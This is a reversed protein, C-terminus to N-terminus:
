HTRQKEEPTLTRPQVLEVHPVSDLFDRWIGTRLPSPGSLLRGPTRHLDRLTVPGAHHRRREEPGRPCRGHAAGSRRRADTRPCHSAEDRIGGKERVEQSPPRACASAAREQQVVEASKCLRARGYLDEDAPPVRRVAGSSSISCIASRPCSSWRESLSRSSCLM